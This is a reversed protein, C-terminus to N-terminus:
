DDSLEEFIEQKILKLEGVADKAIKRIDSVVAVAMNVTMEDETEDPRQDREQMVNIKVPEYDDLQLTFGMSISKKVVSKAGAM